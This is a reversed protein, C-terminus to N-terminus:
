LNGNLTIVTSRFRASVQSNKPTMSNENRKDVITLGYYKSVKPTEVFIKGAKQEDGKLIRKFFGLITLHLILSMLYPRQIQTLLPYQESALFFGNLYSTKIGRRKM